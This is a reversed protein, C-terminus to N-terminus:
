GGFQKLVAVTSECYREFATRGTKSLRLITRPTRGVYGKEVEVYDADELKRMHASLNGRTLGTQRLVFLFDAEDVMALLALIALRAPEHIVRDIEALAAFDLKGPEVRAM